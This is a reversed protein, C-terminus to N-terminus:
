STPADARSADVDIEIGAVALLRGTASDRMAMDAIEIRPRATSRWRRVTITFVAGPDANGFYGVKQDVVKRRLFRADGRGLSRWVRLLATDFISFYSAFYVLGAGNLDRVVDLAYESTHAPGAAVLGPPPASYFSGAERARGVLTRPSHANPLRPLGGYSFDPPAVQSLRQNSDPRERAIWRNFNEAYLCDPHPREYLEEPALPADGLGLSAPALRHLTIVGQSGFQFVRSSVQLEDGFALGHPHVVDGGRVHFYYFSLYAPQGESTRAAHVNTRCAAAVAEWTWDGIRGFVLSGGSCMGPAVVVHRSLSSDDGMRVPQTTTSRNM